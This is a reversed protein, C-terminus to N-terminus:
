ATSQTDEPVNMGAVLLRAVALDCIALLGRFWDATHQLNDLTEILFSEGETPKEDALKQAMDIAEVKTKHLTLWAVRLMVLHPNALKAWEENSPPTWEGDSHVWAEFQMAAFEADTMESPQADEIAAQMKAINADVREKDTAISAGDFTNLTLPRTM